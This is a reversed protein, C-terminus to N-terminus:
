LRGGRSLWLRILNVVYNREEANLRKNKSIGHWKLLCSRCCTATAHQARFVRHGGWPTQKGDNPPVAPALRKEIFDKGHRLIVSLGKERLYNQEKSNLRFGSRFNSNRLKALTKELRKETSQKENNKELNM